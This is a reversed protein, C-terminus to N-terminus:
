QWIAELESTEDRLHWVIAARQVPNLPRAIPMPSARRM